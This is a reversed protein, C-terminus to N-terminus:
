RVEGGGFVIGEGEKVRGIIYAKEGHEELIHITDSVIEEDVALVMGVGMNFINFMEKKDLNGAQQLLDFIPPIPWSGYDVEAQLGEPLMRPINEIFGGGTIHAMGNVEYKKLVELIPKVYIRTPTLLEEGLSKTFGEYTKDLALNSNEFVIKRVLSYGNSHIGSSSLGILVNGPRIKEGTILREKEVVGVTFGALDYEQEAYMGPMEATEGGVLGCGAQECGSAIGKVIQELKEPNAKGCAIYDLFFLPEAGQVVVDNVCMAVADMGITDHKDLMFALMLKTGVGDTGSVLVPNKVDMSSLDFLGGFGGLGGMVGPRVTKAVHKKMRTVAEYGAEIDVGAQKYANAM